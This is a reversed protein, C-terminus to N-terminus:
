RSAEWRVAVSGDSYVIERPVLRQGNLTVTYGPWETVVTVAVSPRAPTNSAVSRIIRQVEPSRARVRGEQQEERLGRAIEALCLLSKRNLDWMTRAISRRLKRTDRLRRKRKPKKM